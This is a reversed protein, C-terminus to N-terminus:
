MLRRQFYVTIPSNCSSYARYLYAVLALILLKTKGPSLVSITSFDARDTLRQLNDTDGDNTITGKIKTKIELLERLLDEQEDPDNSQQADSPSSIGDLQQMLSKIEMLERKLEQYMFNTKTNDNEQINKRDALRDRVERRLLGNIISLLEEPDFPKPLYVDAGAEYGLIRDEVKGRATLLVVPLNVLIPDTRIIKLLDLGSTADRGLRIDLVLCDPPITANSTSNSSGSGDVDVHQTFERNFKFRSRRSTTPLVIGRAVLMASRADSVGTVHFGGEQALYSGIADRLDKEDEVLLIWRQSTREPVNISNAVYLPRHWRTPWGGNM